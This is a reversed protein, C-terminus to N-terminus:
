KVTCPAIDRNSSSKMIVAALAEFRVSHPLCYQLLQVSVLAISKVFKNMRSCASYTLLLNHEMADVNRLFM